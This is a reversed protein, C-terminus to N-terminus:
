CGVISLIQFECEVVEVEIVVTFNPSLFECENKLGVFFFIRFIGLEDISQQLFAIYVVVILNVELFEDSIHLLVTVLLYESICIGILTMGQAQYKSLQAALM